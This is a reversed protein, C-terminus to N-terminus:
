AYYMDVNADNVYDTETAQAVLGEDTNVADHLSQMAFGSQSIDEVEEQELEGNGNLDSFAIDAVGDQDLDAIGVMQGEAEISAVDIQQGNDLTMTEFHTVRPSETNTEVPHDIVAVEEEGPETTIVNVDEDEEEAPVEVVTAAVENEDAAVAAEVHNGTTQAATTTDAVVEAPVETEAADAKQTGIASGAVVGAASGIASSIGSVVNAKVKPNLSIKKM